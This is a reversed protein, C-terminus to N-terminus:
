GYMNDWVICAGFLVGYAPFPSPSPRHSSTIPSSPQHLSNSSARRGFQVFLSLSSPSPSLSYRPLARGGGGGRGGGEGGGGRGGRRSQQLDRAELFFSLLFCYNEGGGRKGRKEGMVMMMRKKNKREGGERGGGDSIWDPFLIALLSWYRACKPTQREGQRDRDRERAKAREEGEGEWVRRM